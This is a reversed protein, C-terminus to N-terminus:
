YKKRGFFLTKGPFVRAFLWNTKGSGCSLLHIKFLSFIKRKAEQM